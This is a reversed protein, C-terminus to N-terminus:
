ESLEEINEESEKLKPARKEERDKRQKRLLKKQAQILLAVENETGRALLYNDFDEEVGQKEYVARAKEMNGDMRFEEPTFDCFQPAQVFRVKVKPTKDKANPHAKRLSCVFKGFEPINCIANDALENNLALMFANWYKEARIINDEGSAKAILWYWKKKSFPRSYKKVYIKGNEDLRM